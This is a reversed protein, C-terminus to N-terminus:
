KLHKFVQETSVYELHNLCYGTFLCHCNTSSLANCRIVVDSDSMHLPLTHLVTQSTSLIYECNVIWYKDNLWFPTRFPTIIRDLPSNHTDRDINITFFFEFKKLLPLRTQILEKWSYGNFMYNSISLKAIVKLHVLSPNLSLFLHLEDNSLWCRYLTLSTLQLYNTRPLHHYFKKM